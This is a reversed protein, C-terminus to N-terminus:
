IRDCGMMFLYCLGMMGLGLLFLALLWIFLTM